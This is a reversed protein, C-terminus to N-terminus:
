VHARGIEEPAAALVGGYVAFPTSLLIRGALLNSILFLPLVAVLRGNDEALLYKPEYGFTEEM